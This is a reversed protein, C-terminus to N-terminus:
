KLGRVIGEALKGAMDDHNIDPGIIIITVDSFGNPDTVHETFVVMEAKWNGTRSYHLDGYDLNACGQLLLLLFAIIALFAVIYVQPPTKM